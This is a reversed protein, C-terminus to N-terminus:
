DSKIAKLISNVKKIQDHCLGVLIRSKHVLGIDDKMIGGLIGTSWGFLAIQSNMVPGHKQTDKCIKIGRSIKYFSFTQGRKSSHIGGSQTLSEKRLLRRKCLYGVVSGSGTCVCAHVCM